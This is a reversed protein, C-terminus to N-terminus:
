AVYKPPSKMGKDRWDVFGHESISLYGIATAEFKMRIESFKRTGVHFELEYPSAFIADADSQGGGIQVAGLTTNGVNKRQSLDVYSGTGVILPQPNNADYDKPLVEVFPENDISYSVKMKQDSGILGAVRFINLTKAGEKDLNDSNLIVHNEINSDEDSLGSFLKFINNSGSDGAILAGDLIDLVSVTFSHIEWSGWVKHLMFLRDNNSSTVRRCAVCIYDGWEFVVAKDFEFGQLNLQESKSIPLIQNNARGYDLVRIATNEGLIDVYYIGRGTAKAARWYPIGVNDRYIVNSSGTTDDPSGVTVIWTKFEHMCFESGGFSEIAQFRGGSDDQRYSLGQGITRPVDSTFNVIGGYDATSPTVKTSDERFYQGYIKTGAIPAINFTISYAGTAYNITGTGGDQGSLNGSKDDIFREAKTAMGGSSYATYGTSTDINVTFTNADPVTLVVGIMGNIETMGSVGTIIVTDGAVLGHASSTIQASSAQTIASISTGAQKAGAVVLFFCTEKSNNAKFALTGTFTKTSGDGTALEEKSTYDYIQEGGDIYSRYIGTKDSGGFTDKRDWLWTASDKIHIKGRYEKELLDVVSTPNAVPIKYFSSNPSTMYVMNGALSNYGQIAIDEADGNADIVAAPFLNSSIETATDTAPDYSYAKRGATYFVYSVGDARKATKLGTVRGASSDSAGLLKRGRRLEMHDGLFHWNLCDGSSGRRLDKDEIRNIFGYKYSKTIIPAM